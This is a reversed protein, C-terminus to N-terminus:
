KRPGAVKQFVWARFMFFNWFVVVPIAVLQTINAAKVSDPPVAFVRHLVSILVTTIALNLVLGIAYVSFGRAFEHHVVGRGRFTWVRNWIFGNTAAVVFATAAAAQAGVAWDRGAFHLILGTFGLKILAFNLVAFHVVTNAAGVICFKVFQRIGRRQHWAPAAGAAPDAAM